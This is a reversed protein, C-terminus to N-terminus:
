RLVLLINSVALLFVLLIFTLALVALSLERRLKYARYALFMGVGYMLFAAVIFSSIDVYTGNIGMGGTVFDSANPESRFQTVYTSKEGIANLRLLILVSTFLALFTEVSTALLVTRDQFFHKANAM